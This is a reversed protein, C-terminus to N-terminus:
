PDHFIDRETLKAEPTPDNESVPSIVKSPETPVCDAVWPRSFQNAMTVVAPPVNAAPSTIRKSPDVLVILRSEVLFIAVIVAPLEVKVAVM